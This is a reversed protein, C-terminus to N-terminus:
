KTWSISEITSRVTEAVDGNAATHRLVFFYVRNGRRFATVDRRLEDSGKTRTQGFHTAEVGNITVSKNPGRASWMEGGTGREALWRELNADAPVDAVLVELTVPRQGLDRRYSVVIITRSLPGEPVTARSQVVWGDPVLFRLGVRDDEFVAEDTLPPAQPKDSCGVAVAILPLALLTRMTM